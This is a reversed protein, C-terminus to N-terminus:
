VVERIFVALLSFLGAPWNMNVSIRYTDPALRPFLGVVDSGRKTILYADYSALSQM